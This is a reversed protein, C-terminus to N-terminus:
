GALIERLLGAADARSEEKLLYGDAGQQLAQFLHEDDDFVTIVVAWAKPHRERILAMLSAGTGDPLNLDLVVLDPTLRELLERARALSRAAHLEVAGFADAIVATVFEADARNDEVLVVRSVNRPETM